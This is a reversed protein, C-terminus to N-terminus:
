AAKRENVLDRFTQGTSELVADMGTLAQWRMVSVDVYIPSLEMGRGIRNRIEAAMVTSGSGSFPDFVVDNEDTYAMVFFEPLGIPFAASHGLAQHSGSFTPLRNGPYALGEVTDTGFVASIHGQRNAVNTDDEIGEKRLASGIGGGQKESWTTSGVGKGRAVPVSKSEKRVSMPRMKWEGKVFQYIPEFQNKFRQTVQKPVGSREWSFETAFHWNWERVHAIVLDMVYLHTDLGMSPPKINLFYSGGAALRDGINKAVTSFWEVYQDPHIPKFGSAQDYERQEAYPPSTVAVNILDDGMLKKMDDTDRCDGCMIRHDGMIWVDGKMTTPIAPPEPAETDDTSELPGANGPLLFSDDFGTLGIDFDMDVLDSLELSVLDFDWGAKEALRNDALIYARKQIETLHSLEICPVTKMKLKRAALLRGHGAIIGNEGDILVPNTFGFERISAAIEAVQEDSHTRANNAFPILESVKIDTIKMKKKTAAPM